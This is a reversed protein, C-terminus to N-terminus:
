GGCKFDDPELTSLFADSVMKLTKIKEPDLCYNTNKGSVHGQILGAKKLEALHQNVTTRSLPLEESIDGTICMKTESLYRLIQLRAPHGLAKFFSAAEQLETDFLTTKALVM